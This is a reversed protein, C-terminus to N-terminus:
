TAEERADGTPARTGRGAGRRLFGADLGSRGVPSGVGLEDVFERLDGRGCDDVHDHVHDNDVVDV